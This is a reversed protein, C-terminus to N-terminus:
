FALQIEAGKGDDSIVTIVRQHASDYTAKVPAGASSALPAKEAGYIEIALASWWPSFSGERPFVKVTLGNATSAGSFSERLFAGNKYAFTQGDDLYVSGACAQGGNEPPYVRLTLPGQPKEGTSQVLLQRPIISGARVYVPLTELTRHIHVETPRIGPKSSDQSQSASLVKAGTWYDYWGVPPLAV